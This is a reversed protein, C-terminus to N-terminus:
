PQIKLEALGSGAIRGCDFWRLGLLGYGTETSFGDLIAANARRRAITRGALGIRDLRDTSTLLASQARFSEIIAEAILVGSDTADAAASAAILAARRDERDATHLGLFQQIEVGHERRTEDRRAYDAFVVPDIGLQQAIFGLMMRPLVENPGLARGPFRMLCLQVAFGLQNHEGRKILARDIDAGSLTYHRILEEEDQPIGILAAWQSLKQLPRYRM